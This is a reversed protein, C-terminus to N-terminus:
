RRETPCQGGRVPRQRRGLQSGGRPLAGSQRAVVRAPGGPGADAGAARLRRRGSGEGEERAAQRIGAVVAGAGRRRGGNGCAAAEAETASRGGGDGAAVGGDDM